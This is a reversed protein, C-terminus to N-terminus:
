MTAEGMVLQRSVVDCDQSANEALVLQFFCVRDYNKMKQQHIVADKGPTVNSQCFCFECSLPESRPSLQSAHICAVCGAENDFQQEPQNNQKQLWVILSTM